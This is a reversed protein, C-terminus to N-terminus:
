GTDYINGTVGRSESITQSIQQLLETLQGEIAMRQDLAEQIKKRGAALQQQFLEREGLSSSLSHSVELIGAKSKAVSVELEARREEATEFEKEAQARHKKKEALTARLTDAKTPTPQSPPSTQGRDPSSNTASPM